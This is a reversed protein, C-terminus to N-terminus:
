GMKEKVRAMALTRLEEAKVFLQARQNLVDAVFDQDKISPVNIDVSLMCSRLAAEAVM